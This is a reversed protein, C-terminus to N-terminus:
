HSALATGALVLIFWLAVSVVASARRRRWLRERAAWLSELPGQTPRARLASEVRVVVAVNTLLVVILAMKAWFIRSAAFAEVDAFFLLAGSVAAIGLATGVPRRLRLLDDLHRSREADNSGDVRLTARDAALALGGGALLGGIHGFLVVTSVLPSHSYLRRWPEAFADVQGVDPLAFFATLLM